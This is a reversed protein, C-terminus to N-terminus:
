LGEEFIKQVFKATEPPLEMEAEREIQQVSPLLEDLSLNLVHAIEYALHVPIRQTGAEINTVSTRTLKLRDALEQQTLHLRSRGKRVSQGIQSYISAEKYAM